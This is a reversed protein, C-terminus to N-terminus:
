IDNWPNRTLSFITTLSVNILKIKTAMNKKSQTINNSKTNDRM